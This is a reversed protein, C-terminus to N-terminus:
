DKGDIPKTRAARHRAESAIAAEHRDHKLRAEAGKDIRKVHDITSPAFTDVGLERAEEWEPMDGGAQIAIGDRAEHYQPRMGPGGPGGRAPADMGKGFLPQSPTSGRYKTGREGM